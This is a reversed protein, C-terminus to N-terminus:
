APNTFRGYAGQSFILPAGERWEARAVEGVIIDHDGGDHRAKQRCEFRALCGHLLPVDREGLSWDAGDFDFGDTAFRRCVDEQDEGLIHIAFREADRFTPYRKSAKAPSWLVLPPDLSVSAFSNATIGLPGLASQATIVTVGTAFRGLADRLGRTDEPGPTLQRMLSRDGGDM